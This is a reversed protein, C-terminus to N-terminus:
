ALIISVPAVADGNAVMSDNMWFVRKQPEEGYALRVPSSFLGHLLPVLEEALFPATPFWSPQRASGSVLSSESFVLRLFLSYDPRCSRRTKKVEAGQKAPNPQTM